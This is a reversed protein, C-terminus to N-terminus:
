QSAGISRISQSARAIRRSISAIQPSAYAGDGLQSAPVSSPGRDAVQDIAVILFLQPRRSIPLRDAIGGPRPHFSSPRGLEHRHAQARPADDCAPVM